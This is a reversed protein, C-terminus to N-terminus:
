NSQSIRRQPLGVVKVNLWGSSMDLPLWDPHATTNTAMTVTTVAAEAECCLFGGGKLVLLM